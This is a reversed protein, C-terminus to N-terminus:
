QCANGTYDSPCSCGFGNTYMVCAGANLCPNNLCYNVGNCGRFEVRLGVHDNWTIPRVRIFQTYIVPTVGKAVQGDRDKNGVYTKVDGFVDKHAEFTVADSSYHLQYSKVWEDADPRGQTKVKHITVMRSFNVQLWPQEDEWSPCWCGYGDRIDLLNGVKVEGNDQHDLFTVGDQSYAIRFKTVRTDESSDDMGQISIGTLTTNVRFDIQLWSDSLGDPAWGGSTLGTVAPQNLRAFITNKLGDSHESSSTLQADLIDGSELGLAIPASCSQCLDGQVHDVCSCAFSTPTVRSCGGTNLCPNTPLCVQDCIYFEVRLAIYRTHTKPNVRIYRSTIRPSFINHVVTSTDTNGTFIKEVGHDKYIDFLIGDNGKSVTFTKVYSGWGGGQTDIGDVTVLSKFDVQLWPNDYDSNAPSWYIEPYDLRAYISTHSISYTSSATIQNAGIENSKMGAPVVTCPLLCNALEMRLGPQIEFSLVYIRFYRSNINPTFYNLVIGSSDVNAKFIKTRGADEYDQFNTGDDGYSVSFTTVFTIIDGVVSGQTKIIAINVIEQFDVQLWSKYDTKWPRWVNETTDLRVGSAKFESNRISSATIQSNSIISGNGLGLDTVFPCYLDCLYGLYGSPCECKFSDLLDTCNGNNQCTVSVCNDLGEYNDNDDNNDVDNDDGGDDDDNDGGHDDDDDNDRGNDGGHDDDDGGDDDDNDCGHDDDHDDNDGGHDDLCGYIEARMVCAEKCTKPHIRIFRAYITSPLNRKVVSSHDYNAKFVKTQGDFKYFAFNTGDISYSFKFTEMWMSDDQVGGQTAVGSILADKILNVEFWPDADTSAHLWGGYTSHNLRGYQQGYDETSFSTASLQFDKINGDELGLAAGPSSC